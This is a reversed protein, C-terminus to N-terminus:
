EVLRYLTAARTKSVNGTPIELIEYTSEKTNETPLPDSIITIRDGVRLAKAAKAPKKNVLVNGRSCLTNATARRKVLRSIQLFKDVRM